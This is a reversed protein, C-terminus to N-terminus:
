LITKWLVLMLYLCLKALRVLALCHVALLIHKRAQHHAGIAPM